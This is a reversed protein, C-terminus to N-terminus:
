GIAAIAYFLEGNTLKYKVGDYTIEDSNTSAFKGNSNFSDFDALTGRVATTTSAYKSESYFQGYLITKNSTVVDEYIMKSKVTEVGNVKEKYKLKIDFRVSNTTAEKIEIALQNDFYSDNIWEGVFSSTSGSSKATFTYKKAPLRNNTSNKVNLVVKNGDFSISGSFKSNDENKNFVTTNAGSENVVTGTFSTRVAKILYDKNGYTLLFGTFPAKLEKVRLERLKDLGLMIDDETVSNYEAANLFHYTDDVQTVYYYYNGSNNVIGVYCYSQFIDGYGTGEGNEVKTGDIKNYPIIVAEGSKPEYYITEKARMTKASEAYAKALDVVTADRSKSISSQIAVLGITSIIGIIIIVALVEILTFGKKNM